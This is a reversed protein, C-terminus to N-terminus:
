NEKPFGKTWIKDYYIDKIILNPIGHKHESAYRLAKYEWTQYEESYKKVLADINERIFCAIKIKKAQDSSLLMNAVDFLAIRTLEEYRRAEFFYRLKDKVEDTLTVCLKIEKDM